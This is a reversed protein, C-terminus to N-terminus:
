AKEQIIQGGSAEPLAPNAEGLSRSIASPSDLPPPDPQPEPPPRFEGNAKLISTPNDPTDKPANIEDGEPIPTAFKALAALITSPNDADHATVGEKISQLIINPRDPSDVPKEYVDSAHAAISAARQIKAMQRVPLAGAYKLFHWDKNWMM